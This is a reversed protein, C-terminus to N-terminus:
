QLKDKVRSVLLQFKLSYYYWSLELTQRVFAALYRDEIQDCKRLFFEEGVDHALNTASSAVIDNSTSHM